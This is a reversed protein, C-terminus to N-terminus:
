IKHIIKSINTKPNEQKYNQETKSNSKNKETKNKNKALIKAGVTFICFKCCGGYFQIYSCYNRQQQQCQFNYM